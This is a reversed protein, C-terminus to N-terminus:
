ASNNPLLYRSQETFHGGVLPRLAIRERVFQNFEARTANKRRGVGGFTCYYESLIREYPNRVFMFWDYRAVHSPSKVSLTHHWNPAPSGALPLAKPPVGARLARRRWERPMRPEAVVSAFRFADDYRGWSLNHQRGVAEVSSGGTKTIHVFRLSKTARITQLTVSYRPPRPPRTLEVVCALALAM